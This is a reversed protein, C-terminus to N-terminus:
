ARADFSYQVLAPRNSNDDILAQMTTNEEEAGRITMEYSMSYGRKELREDLIGIHDMIFDLIEDDQLYFRTNVHNERLQVYVDTPGLHEMDLHLLASVSGDSSAMHKKNSYVYLEGHAENGALKLPLQVYAYMDNLQNLFNVNQNMNQVTKGLPSEMQGNQTLVDTMSKLQRGLKQYLEEVKERSADEPRLTLQEKLLGELNSKFQDSRLLEKLPVGRKGEASENVQRLLQELTVTSKIPNQVTEQGPQEEYERAREPHTQKLASQEHAPMEPVLHEHASTDVAPYEHAPVDVASHERPLEVSDRVTEERTLAAREGASDDTQVQDASAQVPLQGDSLPESLAGAQIGEMTEGPLNSVTESGQEGPTQPLVASDASPAQEASATNETAFSPNQALEGEMEPMEGRLAQLLSELLAPVRDGNGAEAMGALLQTMDDAMQEIGGLLQHTMNKYSSMQLLNEETVPMSLKHLDIIDMLDATQNSTMERFIQQLTNKNIPMGEKMLQETMQLTQETEPLDAMELAKQVSAGMGVNEFLPNLSLMSGNNKVQFMMMRGLPVAINQEMRAQLILGGMDSGLMLKIDSGNREVVEGQLIQGPTLARIQHNLRALQEGNDVHAAPTSNSQLTTHLLDQLWM